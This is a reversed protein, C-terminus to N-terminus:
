VIGTLPQFKHVRQVYKAVKGRNTSIRALGLVSDM